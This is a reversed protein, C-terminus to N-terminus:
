SPLVKHLQEEGHNRQRSLGALEECGYRPGDEGAEAVAGENGGGATAEHPRALRHLRRRREARCVRVRLPHQPPHPQMKRPPAHNHRRLQLPLLAGVRLLEAVLRGGLLGPVGAAVRKAVALMWVLAEAPLAPVTM